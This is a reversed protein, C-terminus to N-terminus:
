HILVCDSCLSTELLGEVLTLDDVVRLRQTYAQSANDGPPRPLVSVLSSSWHQPVWWCRSWTNRSGSRNCAVKSRSQAAFREIPGRCIMAGCFANCDVYCSSAWPGLLRKSQQGIEALINSDWEVADELDNFVLEGEWGFM